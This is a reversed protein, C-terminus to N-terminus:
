RSALWLVQVKTHESAEYKISINWISWFNNTPIDWLGNKRLLSFVDGFSSITYPKWANPAKKTNYKQAITLCTACVNKLISNTKM